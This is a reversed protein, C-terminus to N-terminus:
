GDEEITYDFGGRYEYLLGVVPATLRLHVHQRQEGEDYREELWLVPTLLRPVPVRRGAAVRVTLATSTLVLAGNRVAAHLRIRFPGVDDVLRGGAIAVRDRMTWEGSRFMFTREASVSPGIGPRNEVRFPV